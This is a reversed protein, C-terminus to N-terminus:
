KEGRLWRKIGEAVIVGYSEAGAEGGNVGVLWRAHAERDIFLGEVIVAPQTTRELFFFLHKDKEVTNPRAGHPEFDARAFRPGLGDALSVGIAKAAAEGVLSGARHIAESYRGGGANLHIEVALDPKCNNVKAIKADDYETQALPGCDFLEVACNGTLTRFAAISARLSILYEHVGHIANYAGQAKCSHAVSILVSKM